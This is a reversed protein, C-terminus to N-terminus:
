NRGAHLVSWVCCLITPCRDHRLNRQFKQVASPDLHAFERACRASDWQSRMLAEFHRARRGSLYSEGLQQVSATSREMWTYRFKMTKFLITSGRLNFEGLRDLRARRRLM